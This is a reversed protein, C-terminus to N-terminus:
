DTESVEELNLNSSSFPEIIWSKLSMAQNRGQPLGLKYDPIEVKSMQRALSGFLPDWLSLITSFNANGFERPVLHHTAHFRPTVVIKSVVSEVRDPLDINSHHWQACFSVLAEFMFWAITSPGWLIVWVAKALTSLMLEGPHFRLATTVDIDVDSHHAKHFRWLFPVHHNARHWLYDFADLVIISFLFEMWGTLGLWRSLGWGMEEVYVLWALFPVYILVRIFVTNFAAIVSHFWLRKLPRTAQTRNPRIREIGLFLTLGFLFVLLRGTDLDLHM